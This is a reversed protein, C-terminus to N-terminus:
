GVPWPAPPIFCRMPPMCQREQCVALTWHVCLPQYLWDRVRSCHTGKDTGLWRTRKPLMQKLCPAQGQQIQSCSRKQFRFYLLFPGHAIYCWMVVEELHLSAPKWDSCEIPHFARVPFLFSARRGMLWRSCLSDHLYQRTSWAPGKYVGTVQEQSPNAETM